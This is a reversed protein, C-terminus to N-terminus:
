EGFEKRPEATLAVALGAGLVALFGAAVVLTTKTGSIVKVNGSEIDSRAILLDEDPAVLQGPTLTFNFPSIQRYTGSKDTVGIRSNETIVVDEGSETEVKVAANTGGEQAKGLEDLTVNYTNYCGLQTTVAVLLAARALRASPSQGRMTRLM